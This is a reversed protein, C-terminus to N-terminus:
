NVTFSTTSTATGGKTTVAIKGTTAGTPVTATIEIDSVVTFSASKGGFTVKTAQTLGTGNVTVPTGVPGSPPSFSAITPTVRFTNNSTLTKSGTTVTVKGTLAGAPVTASIFTSGNRQITTAQTGDFKVVSSSNFGQGLIGIKTGEKGSTSVLSVFSGLGTSLSFVTGTGGTGGSVTTGYFTGNTDQVLAGEPFSGGAGGTFSYLNTLTGSPTLEFVTGNGGNIGGGETTGYFNGDSGQILGNFPLGGDTCNTQSCFTYVLTLTGSATIKYVTGDGNVGDSYTTGYFDGNAGQILEGRPLGGNPDNFQFSYLTTLTGSATIKFVVGYGDGGYQTTGYFNGDTGQVVGGYPYAGDTGGTFSHLTTLTGSPTMSFVTGYGNAGSFQTTGYFQGSTSQFLRGVSEAGDTGDFEDLTTMTGSPTIDFVTGDGNTGGDQATGYLNGDTAQVVGAYPVSGATGGFYTITTLTGSPTIEYITGDSNVLDGGTTGYLMGNSAQVLQGRPNLGDTYNFDFLTTFTQASAPIAVVIMLVAVAAVLTAIIRSSKLTSHNM